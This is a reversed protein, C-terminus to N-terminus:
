KPVLKKGSSGGRLSVSFRASISNMLVKQVRAERGIASPDIPDMILDRKSLAVQDRWRLLEGSDVNEKAVGFEEAFRTMNESFLSHASWVAGVAM